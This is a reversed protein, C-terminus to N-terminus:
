KLIVVGVMLNIVIDLPTDFRQDLSSPLFVVPNNSGKNSHLHATLM